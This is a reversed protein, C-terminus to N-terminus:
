VPGVATFAPVSRTLPSWVAAVPATVTAAIPVSAPAPVTPPVTLTPPVTAGPPAVLGPVSVETPPTPSAAFAFRDTRIPALPLLGPTVGPVLSRSATVPEVALSSKAVPLTRFSDGSVDLM